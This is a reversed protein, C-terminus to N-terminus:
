CLNYQTIMKILIQSSYIYIYLLYNYNLLIKNLTILLLISFFYNKVYLITGFENHKNNPTHQSVDKIIM